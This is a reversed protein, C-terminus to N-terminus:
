QVKNTQKGAFGPKVYFGNVGTRIVWKQSDRGSSVKEIRTDRHYKIKLDQPRLFFADGTTMGQPSVVPVSEFSGVPQYGGAYQAGAKPDNLVWSHLVGVLPEFREYVQTELVHMFDSKPGSAKNLRAANVQDRILSLSINVSTTDEDSALTPYTTRNLAADSYTGTSDIDLKVQTWIDDFIMDFLSDMAESVAKAALNNISPQGGAAAQSIDIGHVEAAAHQYVKTWTADVWVSDDSVPDVDARTYTSANTSISTQIPITIVSGGQKSTDKSFLQELWEIRKMFVTEMVLPFIVERVITDLNTQM